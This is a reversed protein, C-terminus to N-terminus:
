WDRDCEADDIMAEYRDIMADGEAERVEEWLLTELDTQTIRQVGEEEEAGIVEDEDLDYTKGFEVVTLRDIEIEAYEPPEERTGRWDRGSVSFEINVNCLGYHDDDIYELELNMDM